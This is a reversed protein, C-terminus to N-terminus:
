KELTRVIRFGAGFYEPFRHSDWYAKLAVRRGSRVFAPSEFYAGGRVDFTLNSKGTRQQEDVLLQGQTNSRSPSDTMETCNGLMDFLGWRNPRLSGVPLMESGSKASVAYKELYEDTAGFPWLTDSGARCALEWEANTPLRYGNVSRDCPPINRNEDSQMRAFMHDLDDFEGYCSFLHHRRSLWVCYEVANYWSIGDAPLKQVQEETLRRKTPNERIRAYAKELHRAHSCDELFEEFEAVSVELTAIEFGGQIQQPHEVEYASFEPNRLDANFDLLLKEPTGVVFPQTPKEIRVFTMGNVVRWNRRKSTNTENAYEQPLEQIDFDIQWKQFLWECASHTGADPASKWISELLRRTSEAVNAPPPYGGLAVLLSALRPDDTRHWKTAIALLQSRPIGSRFSECVFKTEASRDAPNPLRLLYNDLDQFDREIDAVYTYALWIRGLLDANPKGGAQALLSPFSYRRNTQELRSKLLPLIGAIPRDSAVLQRVLDEPEHSIAVLLQDILRRDSERELERRLDLLHQRQAPFHQPFLRIWDAAHEEDQSAFEYLLRGAQADEAAARDGDGSQGELIRSALLGRMRHNPTLSSDEAILRFQNSLSGSPQGQEVTKLVGCAAEFEEPLMPEFTLAKPITSMVQTLLALDASSAFEEIPMALLGLRLRRSRQTSPFGAPSDQTNSQRLETSLIQHAAHRYGSSRLQDVSALLANPQSEVLLEVAYRVKQLNEREVRQLTLFNVVSALLITAFVAFLSGAIWPNKRAWRVVREPLRLPRAALEDRREWRRLDEALDSGNAYRDAPDAALCKEWIANLDPDINECRQDLRTPRIQQISRLLDTITEASEEQSRFTRRGTLMEDMVIGLAWVDARADALHSKGAAQEPSFYQPTGIFVDSAETVQDPPLSQRSACGFDAIHPEGSEEEILINSPKVDRHVIGSKHAYGLGDAIKTLLGVAKAPSFVGHMRMYGRLTPGDIFEYVIFTQGSGVAGAQHVPVVNPHRLQAMAKAEAQFSEQRRRDGIRDPKIVKIAVDRDLRTDRARYVVGFGGSGLKGILRFDGLSRPEIRQVVEDRIKAAQYSSPGITTQEALSDSEAVSIWSLDSDVSMYRSVFEHDAADLLQDFSTALPDAPHDSPISEDHNASADSM